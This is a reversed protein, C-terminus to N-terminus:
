EPSQRGDRVVRGADLMVVQDALQLLEPTHAAVMVMRDKALERVIEAVLEVGARDLNADPEDLLFLSADRCLMRALAVRQRQGVSLSDIKVELPRAGGRSLAETLGVRDIARQMREDSVEIALFRIANRVNSRPPLYPRQPLFAVQSRWVEPDLDGLDVGNIRITGARPRALALLLRLCTSKGSGNLGSLALVKGASWTFSVDRLVDIDGPAGEYRFSLGDFTVDAPSQSVVGMGKPPPHADKVIQGVIRLWREAQATSTLGHALGAFTPTVSAFLAMAALPVSLLGRWRSDVGAALGVVAAVALLSLRGSLITARAVHANAAGWARTRENAEDIFSARGASAVVELRGELADVLTDFARCQLEWARVVAKQLRSRSWALGAGAALALVMAITMIKAPEILALIVTLVATAVLDAALTPLSQSLAQASSYIGQGLEVHADERSLVSSRLVDGALLSDIVRATLDAETRAAFVKSTWTHAAVTMTLALTVVVKEALGREFLIWAAAPALLREALMLLGVITGRRLM